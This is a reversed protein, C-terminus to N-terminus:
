QVPLSVSIPHRRKNRFSVILGRNTSPLQTEYYYETNNTIFDQMEKFLKDFIEPFATDLNLNQIKQKILATQQQKEEKTYHTAATPEKNRIRRSKKGM